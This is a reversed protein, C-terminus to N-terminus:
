VLAPGYNPISGIPESPITWDKMPRGELMASIERLWIRRVMVPKADTRGLNEQGRGAVPGQGVQTVYDEIAFSTYASLEDPIEEITMDGALIKEALDWRSEAEVEQRTRNAEFARAEEGFLPTTTVDFAVFSKDNIPVTWVIKTDWLNRQEFDKARNRHWFQATNPMFWHHTKSLAQFDAIDGKTTRSSV